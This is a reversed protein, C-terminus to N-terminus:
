KWQYGCNRCKYKLSREYDPNSSAQKEKWKRYQEEFWDVYFILIGAALGGGIFIQFGPENLLSKLWLYSETERCREPNPTVFPVQIRYDYSGCGKRMEPPTSALFIMTSLVVYGVLLIALVMKATENLRLGRRLPTGCSPCVPSKTVKDSGM